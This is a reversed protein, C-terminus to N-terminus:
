LLDEIKVLISMDDEFKKAWFKKKAAYEIKDRNKTFIKMLNENDGFNDTLAQRSIQCQIKKTGNNGLFVIMEKGPDYYEKKNDFVLNSNDVMDLTSLIKLMSSIQVNEDGNEFNSITPTSLGALMALKAQTM